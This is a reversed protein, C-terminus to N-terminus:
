LVDSSRNQKQTDGNRKMGSTPHNGIKGRTVEQNRTKREKTSMGRLILPARSIHPSTIVKITVQGPAPSSRLQVAATGRTHHVPKGNMVRLTRLLMNTTPSSHLQVVVMTYQMIERPVLKRCHLNGRIRVNPCGRQLPQTKPASLLPKWSIKKLPPM